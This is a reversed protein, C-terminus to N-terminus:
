ISDAWMDWPGPSMRERKIAGMISGNANSASVAVATIADVTSMSTSLALAPNAVAIIHGGSASIVHLNSPSDLPQPHQQQQQQQQNLQQQHHHLQLHQQANSHIQHHTEFPSRCRMDGSLMKPQDDDALDSASFDHDVGNLSQTSFLSNTM